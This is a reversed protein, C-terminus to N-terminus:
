CPLSLCGQMSVMRAFSSRIQPVSLEPVPKGNVGEPNVYILGMGTQGLPNACSGDGATCPAVMQQEKSPGLELSATGDADDIRGACFHLKPGGTVELATTGALVILDGWSLKDGYKQKIPLLVKRAKDLNTNDGWSLEPEFRM